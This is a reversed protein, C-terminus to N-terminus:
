REDRGLDLSRASFKGPMMGFAIAALNASYGCWASVACPEEVDVAIPLM